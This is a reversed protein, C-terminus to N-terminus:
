YVTQTKLVNVLNRDAQKINGMVCMSWCSGSGACTHEGPQGSTSSQVIGLRM